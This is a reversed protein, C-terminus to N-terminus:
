AGNTTELGADAAEEATIALESLQESITTTETAPRGDAPNPSEEPTLKYGCTTCRAVGPENYAECRQCIVGLAGSLDEAPAEEFAARCRRCETASDANEMGCSPCAIAM